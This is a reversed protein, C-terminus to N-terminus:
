KPNGLMVLKEIISIIEEPPLSSDVVLADAPEELANFQSKLLMPSMFHDVRSSLRTSILEFSGKLFVWYLNSSSNTIIKRYSEKLASCALVVNINNKEFKQLELAIDQLWGERDSDTLPTGQRMKSVNQESHFDDADIFKWALKKAVLSGITTKGVGAVGM